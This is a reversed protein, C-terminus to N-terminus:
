GERGTVQIIGEQDLDLPSSLVFYRRRYKGDRNGTMNNQFKKSKLGLGRVKGDYPFHGLYGM